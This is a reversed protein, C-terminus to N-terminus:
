VAGNFFLDYEEKKKNVNFLRVYDNGKIQKEFDIFGTSNCQLFFKDWYYNQQLTKDGHRTVLSGLSSFYSRECNQFLYRDGNYFDIYDVGVEKVGNLKHLGYVKYLLNLSHSTIDFARAEHPDNMLRFLDVTTKLLGSQTIQLFPLRKKGKLKELKKMMEEKDDDVENFFAKDDLEDLKDQILGKDDAHTENCFKYIESEIGNREDYVYVKSIDIGIGLKDGVDIKKEVKQTYLDIGEDFFLASLDGKTWGCLKFHLNKDLQQSAVLTRVTRFNELLDKNLEDFFETTELPAFSLLSECLGEFHAETLFIETQKEKFNIGEYVDGDFNYVGFQNNWFGDIWQSDASYFYSFPPSM